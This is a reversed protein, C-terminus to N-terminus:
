FTLSQSRVASMLSELERNEMLKVFYEIGHRLSLTASIFGNAPNRVYDLYPALEDPAIDLDDALIVSGSRLHSSVLHLVDQYLEKWGDLFLLDIIGDRDRLTGLADGASNRCVAIFWGGRSEGNGM